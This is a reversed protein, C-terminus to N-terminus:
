RKWPATTTLASNAIAPGSHPRLCVTAQDNFCFLYRKRIVHLCLQLPSANTLLQGPVQPLTKGKSRGHDQPFVHVAFASAIAIHKSSYNLAVSQGIISWRSGLTTTRPLLLHGSQM